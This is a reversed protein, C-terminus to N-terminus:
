EKRFNGGHSGGDPEPEARHEQEPEDVQDVLAAHRLVLSLTLFGNQRESLQEVHRTQRVM